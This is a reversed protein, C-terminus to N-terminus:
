FSFPFLPDAFHGWRIFALGVTEQSIRRIGTEQDDVGIIKPHTMRNILRDETRELLAHQTGCSHHHGTGPGQVGHMEEGIMGLNAETDV